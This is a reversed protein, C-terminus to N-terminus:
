TQPRTLTAAANSRGSSTTTWPRESPSKWPRWRRKPSAATSSPGETGRGGRCEWWAGSTAAGERPCETRTGRWLFTTNGSAVSTPARRTLRLWRRSRGLLSLCALKHPKTTFDKRFSIRNENEPVFSIWLFTVCMGPDLIWLLDTYQYGYFDMSIRISIWPHGYFDLSIPSCGHIYKFIWQYGLIYMSIKTSIWPYGSPYGYFFPCNLVSM